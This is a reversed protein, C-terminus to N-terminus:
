SACREALVTVPSGLLWNLGTKRLAAEVTASFGAAGISKHLAIPMVFQRDSRRVEFGHERLTARVARDAFVRYAETHGGAMNAVRRAMSQLAAASVLAPYDFLVRHRAVRCLEGLSQRWDPTHMLVRLCVVVDFSRDDYALGHADGQVFTVSLGAAAARRKAVALMEASADVGTVDAGRSALVLAGRGTGTGVDLVQLHEIPELFNVIVREQSEAVLRGIPGSFRMGDFAEAMGPDAYLQYSYHDARPLSSRERTM